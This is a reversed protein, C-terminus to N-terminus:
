TLTELLTPGAITFSTTFSARWQGQRVSEIVGEGHENLLMEVLLQSWTRSQNFLHEGPEHFAPVRGFERECLFRTQEPLSHPGTLNELEELRGINREPLFKGTIEPSMVHLCCHCLM